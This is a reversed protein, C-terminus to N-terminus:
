RKGKRAKQGGGVSECTRAKEDMAQDVAAMEAGDEARQRTWAVAQVSIGRECWGPATLRCCAVLRRQGCGLATLRCCAVLRRQGCDVDVGM